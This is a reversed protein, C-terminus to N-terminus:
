QRKEVSDFFNYIKKLLEEGKTEPSIAVIQVNALTGYETIEKVFQAIKNEDNYILLTALSDIVVFTQSNIEKIFSKIATSLKDVDNPKIHLVDERTREATVCDIFFLNETKLNAQKLFLETGQWTKNLSVCIGVAGRFTGVAKIIENQVKEVPAIILCSSM